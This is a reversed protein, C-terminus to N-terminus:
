PKVQWICRYMCYEPHVPCAIFQKVTTNAAMTTNANRQTITTTNTVMTTNDINLVQTFLSQKSDTREAVALPPFCPVFETKQAIINIVIPQLGTLILVLQISRYKWQFLVFCDVYSIVLGIETARGPLCSYFWYIQMWLTTYLTKNVCIPSFEAKLAFRLKVNSLKLFIPLILISRKFFQHPPLKAIFHIM